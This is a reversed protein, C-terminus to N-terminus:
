GCVSLLIGVHRVEYSLKCNCFGVLLVLIDINQADTAVDCLLVVESDYIEHPLLLSLDKGRALHSMGPGQSLDPLPPSEASEDDPPGLDSAVLSECELGGSEIMGKLDLLREDKVMRM